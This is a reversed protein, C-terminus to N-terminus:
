RKRRKLDEMADYLRKMALFHGFTAKCSVLEYGGDKTVKLVAQDDTPGYGSDVSAQEYAALQTHHTDYVEKSTKLDILYEGPEFHRRTERGTPTRRSVLEVGGLAARLDYRGAFLYRPSGVMVECELPVIQDGAETLFKALGEVYGRESEPFVEPQPFVGERAWSEFAKHVSDGRDAASKKVHNVTLKEQTLFRVIDEPEVEGGMADTFVPYTEPGDGRHHGLKLLQRNVLAAVGNVGVGMGWWPLGPKDVYDQSETVSPVTLWGEPDANAFANVGDPQRLRYLRKPAWQYYIEFGAPTTEIVGEPISGPPSGPLSPIQTEEPNAAGHARMPRDAGQAIKDESSLGEQSDEGPVGGRRERTGGSTVLDDRGSAEHATEGSEVAPSDSPRELSTSSNGLIDELTAM